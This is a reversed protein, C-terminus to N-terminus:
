LLKIIPLTFSFRSKNTLLANNAESSFWHNTQSLTVVLCHLTHQWAFLEPVALAMEVVKLRHYKLQFKLRFLQL